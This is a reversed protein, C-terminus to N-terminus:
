SDTPLGADPGPATDGIAPGADVAGAAAADVAASECGYQGFVGADPCAPDKDCGVMALGAALVGVVLRLKMAM